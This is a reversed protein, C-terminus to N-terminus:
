RLGLQALVAVRAVHDEVDLRQDLGARAADREVGAVDDGGARGGAHAHAELRRAPQAVAVDHADLDVADAGDLVAEGLPPGRHAEDPDVAHRHVGSALAVRHDEHV